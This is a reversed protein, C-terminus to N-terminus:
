EEKDDVEVDEVAVVRLGSNHLQHIARYRGYEYATGLVAGILFSGIAVALGKVAKEMLMDNM